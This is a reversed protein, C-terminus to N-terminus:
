LVVYNTCKPGPSAERGDEPPALAALLGLSPSLSPALSPVRVISSSGRRSCAPASGALDGGGLDGRSLSSSGSVSGTGRRLQKWLDNIDSAVRRPQRLANGGANWGPIAGVGDPGADSSISSRPGGDSSLSSRLSGSSPSPPGEWRVHMRALHVYAADPLVDVECVAAPRQIIEYLWVVLRALKLDECCRLLALNRLTPLQSFFLTHAYIFPFLHLTDLPCPHLIFCIKM